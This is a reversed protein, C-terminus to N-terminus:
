SNSNRMASNTSAFLDYKGPIKQCIIELTKKVAGANNKIYSINVSKINELKQRDSSLGLILDSFEDARKVIQAGKIKILDKAESYNRHNPGFCVANGFVAPELISHIGANSFGGGVFAISTYRYISALIGVCDILLLDNCQSSNMDSFVNVREPYKNKIIFIEKSNIEHPVYIWKLGCDKLQDFVKFFLDRDKSEASGAIIGLRDNIFHRVGPLENSEYSNRIVRDIRANGTNIICENFKNKELLTKSNEDHVFVANFKMFTKKYLLKQPLMLFKSNKWLTFTLLFVPIKRKHLELVYNPWIDNRSFFARKVTLNELFFRANKRLDIPLYLIAGIEPFRRKVIAFGTPSFFTILIKEDPYYNRINEIYEQADQFEGYSSCHFWNYNENCFSLNNILKGLNKRGQVWERAKPNFFGAIYIGALYIRLLISYM